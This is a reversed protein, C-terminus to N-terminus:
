KKIDEPLQIEHLLEEETSADEPFSAVRLDVEIDKAWGETSLYDDLGLKLRDATLWACRKDTEPLVVLVSRSDKISIDSKRRLDTKILQEINHM